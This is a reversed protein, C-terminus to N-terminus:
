HDLRDVQTSLAVRDERAELEELLQPGAQDVLPVAEEGMAVQPRIEVPEASLVRVQLQAVQVEAREPLLSILLHLQFFQQADEGAGPLNMQGALDMQAGVM